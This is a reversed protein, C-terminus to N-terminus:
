TANSTAITISRTPLRRTRRHARGKPLAPRRAGRAVGHGARRDLLLTDENEPCAIRTLARVKCYSIVGRRMADSVKPLQRLARAVRVKERAAILSVGCRWSVWHACSHIGMGAYGEMRDFEALVKLFRYNAANMHGALTTLEREMSEITQPESGDAFSREEIPLSPADAAASPVAHCLRNFTSAGDMLMVSLIM